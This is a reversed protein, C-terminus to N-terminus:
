VSPRTTVANVIWASLRTLRMHGGDLWPFWWLVTVFAALLGVASFVAIQRLGPFPTLALGLYGIVTTLMALCMTPTQQRLLAWRQEPAREIRSTFYNSGYNEAVGVLSAGFVVTLLHLREFLLM